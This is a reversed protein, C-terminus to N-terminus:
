QTPAKFLLYRWKTAPGLKSSRYVMYAGFNNYADSDWNSATDWTSKYSGKGSPAKTGQEAKKYTQYGGTFFQTHGYKYSSVDTSGDVGWYVVVDGVDFKNSKLVGILKDKDYTTNVVIEYGLIELSRWYGSLKKNDRSANAHGGAAFAPGNTTPKNRLANVYNKAWNYTWRACQGANFGPSYIDLGPKKTTPNIKSYDTYTGIFHVAQGARRIALRQADSVKGTFSTASDVDEGYDETDQEAEDIITTGEAQLQKLRLNEDEDFDGVSVIQRIEPTGKVRYGKWDIIGPGNTAGYNSQTLMRGEITNLHFIATRIFYDVFLETNNTPPIPGSQLPTDSTPEETTQEPPENTQGVEQPVKDKKTLLPNEYHKEITSPRDKWTLNYCAGLRTASAKESDTKKTAASKLETESISKYMDDLVKLYNPYIKQFDTTTLTKLYTVADNRITQNNRVSTRYQSTENKAAQALGAIWRFLDGSAKSDANYMFSYIQMRFVPPIKAWVDFGLVNKVREKIIKEQADQGPNYGSCGIKKYDTLQLGTKKDDILSVCGDEDEYKKIAAYGADDLMKRLNYDDAPKPKEKPPIKIVNSQRPPSPTPLPELWRGVDIISNEEIKINSLAGKPLQKPIPFLDMTANAWYAKVGDGMQAVLDYPGQTRVGKELAALFINQMSQVNGSILRTGNRTDGGNKIATDYADAYLKAVTNRDPISEPNNAVRLITQKFVEWSM